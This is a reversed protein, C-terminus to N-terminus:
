RVDTPEGAAPSGPGCAITRAIIAGRFAHRSIIEADVNSGLVTGAPASSPLRQGAKPMM